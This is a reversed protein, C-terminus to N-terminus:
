IAALAQQSDNTKSRAMRGAEDGIKRRFVEGKAKIKFSCDALQRNLQSIYKQAGNINVSSDADVYSCSNVCLSEGEQFRDLSLGSFLRLIRGIGGLLLHSIRYM